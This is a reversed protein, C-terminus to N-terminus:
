RARRRLRVRERATTGARVGGHEDQDAPAALADALCPAQVPCRACIRKAPAATGGPSPFFTEPDVGPRACLAEQRWGAPSLAATM